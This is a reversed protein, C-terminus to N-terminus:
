IECEGLGREACATMTESIGECLSVFAVFGLNKLKVTNPVRRSLGQPKSLDFELTLQRGAADRVITSLEGVTTAQSSDINYVEGSTGHVLITLVARAADDVYLFSRVATGDGWVVLRGGPPVKLARQVLAHVVTSSPGGPGYVNGFRGTVVELGHGHAYWGGLAEDTLKSWAYGSVLGDGPSVVPATEDLPEDGRYVAASSALFVRRVGARATAALVTSTLAHNQAFVEVHAGQQFEIGGSCAALHVVMDVGDLAQILADGDRLDLALHEGPVQAVPGTEPRYPCRVQAGADVLRRAVARGIFGHGGTVLVRTGALDVPSM